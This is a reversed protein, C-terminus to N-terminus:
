SAVATHVVAPLVTGSTWASERDLVRFSVAVRLHSEEIESAGALDAITRAVRLVKTYARATLGHHDMEKALEKQLTRPLSCVADLDKPDLHANTWARVRGVLRRERQIARAREVRARVLASSEAAAGKQLDEVSVPGLTVQVDLRDVVPGSVRSRYARVQEQRCQCRGHQGGMHGCPCSNMAGVIMPRAPFTARAMARSVTVVGDELPERLAELAVRRFEALEDLFLVGCHALSVEGPRALEGGGILGFESVTHHPARFRRADGLAPRAVGAVSEIALVELAEEPALPPLISPLRKALMSKGSGPPGLFLVNHGGAAAVELAYKATEQGRVESLDPLDLDRDRSRKKKPSGLVAEGKIASVIEELSSALEVNVGDVLCAEEENARPVIARAVGRERAGLLHPIVGRLAQVGGNLSLEGLLLVDALAEEPIMALAALTGVAIALDFASGRKRVDAPALNVVVRYESLDVGVGALASKVRVRSERVAAEAFGVLEFSPVGRLIQVEVRVPIATLGVLVASHAIALM